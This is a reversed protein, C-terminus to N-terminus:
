VPSWDSCSVSCLSRCRARAALRDIIGLVVPAALATPRTSGSSLPLSSPAEILTGTGFTLMISRVKVEDRGVVWMQRVKEPLTYQANANSAEARVRSAADGYLTRPGDGDDQWASRGNFGARFRSDGWSLSISFAHPRKTRLTFVGSQGDATTVIGSAETGAIKEIAKKGGIAKIHREIVEGASQARATLPHSVAVALLCLVASRSSM